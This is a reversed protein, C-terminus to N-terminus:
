DNLVKTDYESVKEILDYEIVKMFLRVYNPTTGHSVGIDACHRERGRSAPRTLPPLRPLNPIYRQLM